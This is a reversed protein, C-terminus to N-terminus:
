DELHINHSKAWDRAAEESAFDGIQGLVISRPSLMRIEWYPVDKRYRRLVRCRYIDHKSRIM